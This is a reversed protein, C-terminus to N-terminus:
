YMFTFTLVKKDNQTHSYLCYKHNTDCQGNVNITNQQNSGFVHQNGNHHLNSNAAHQRHIEETQKRANEAQKLADEHIKRARRLAEEHRQQHTKFADDNTQHQHYHFTPGGKNMLKLLLVM